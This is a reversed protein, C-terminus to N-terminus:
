FGNNLLLLIMCFLLKLWTIGAFTTHAIWDGLHLAAWREIQDISDSIKEGAQDIGETQIPQMRPIPNTSTDVEATGDIKNEPAQEVANTYSPPLLILVSLTVFFVLRTTFYKKLLHTKMLTSAMKVHDQM